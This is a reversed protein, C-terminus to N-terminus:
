DLPEFTWKNDVKKKLNLSYKINTQRFVEYVGEYDTQLMDCLYEITGEENDMFLTYLHDVCLLLMTEEM